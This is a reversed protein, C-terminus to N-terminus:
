QHLVKKAKILEDIDDFKRYPLALKPLEEVAVNLPELFETFQAMISGDLDIYDDDKDILNVYTLTLLAIKSRYTNNFKNEDLDKPNIHGQLVAKILEKQISFESPKAKYKESIVTTRSMRATILSIPISSYEEKIAKIYYEVTDLNKVKSAHALLVDVADATSNYKFFFKPVDIIRLINRVDASFYSDPDSGDPFDGIFVELGKEECKFASKIAGERGAEDGDFNIRVSHAHKNILSVQEDTMTSGCVGVVEKDGTNQYMRMVDFYGEVLHAVGRHKIESRTQKLGFLLERRKFIPTTWSNEYKPEDPRRNLRMFSFGCVRDQDDFFPFTLCGPFKFRPVDLKSKYVVGLNLCIEPDVIKWNANANPIFGVEFHRQTAYDIHRDKLYQLSFETESNKFHEHWAKMQEYYEDYEDAEKFGLYDSLIRIAEGFDVKHYLTVFNFINGGKGCGFCKFIGKSPSVKFSPDSDSHFPCLGVHNNGKVTLDVYQEIYEVIDVNSKIEEIISAM